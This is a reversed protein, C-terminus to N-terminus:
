RLPADSVRRAEREDVVMKAFEPVLKSLALLLNDLSVPPKKMAAAQDALLRIMADRDLDFLNSLFSDPSQVDIGAPMEFFDKVNFTVVLDAGAKLAAAVVHQDKPDNKAAPILERYGIVDAQPFARRMAGLLREAQEESLPIKAVLNRRAEELIEETWHLQYFGAQAARLLTDRVTFPFLTCADLVVKFPAPFM